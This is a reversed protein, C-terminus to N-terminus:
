DSCVFPGRYDSAVEPKPDYTDLHSCGGRLWVIIVATHEQPQPQPAPAEARLRLLGPLSLTGFGALGVKLFERRSGSLSRESSSM